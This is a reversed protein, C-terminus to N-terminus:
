IGQGSPTDLRRKQSARGEADEGSTASTGQAAYADLDLDVLATASEGARYLAHYWRVTLSIAERVGWRPCWSLEDRAKRSDLALYGTEPLDSQVYRVHQASDDGWVEAFEAVVHRVPWVEEPVPGFNWGGQVSADKVLREALTLYGGIPELVHQWPRVAEPRRLVLSSNTTLARVIDPVLRDASWDGGGIVNGARASAVRAQHDHLLSRCYAATVIEACGKSASYADVGGMPDDERHAHGSGDTEYCKDSTVVVCAQVDSSFRVAELLNVTGMVNTSLTGVPDRYSELVLSQAALHFVIEPRFSAICNRLSDLDRVDGEQHSVRDALSLLHFLSPNTPAPLSYGMVEAGGRLLSECLWPGKFGTHGTVLVKRGRWFDGPWTGRVSDASM